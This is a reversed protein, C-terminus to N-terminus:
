LTSFIQAQIRYYKARELLGAARKHEAPDSRIIRWRAACIAMIQRYLKAIRKNADPETM